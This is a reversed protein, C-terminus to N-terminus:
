HHVVARAHWIIMKAPKVHHTVPSAHQLQLLIKLNTYQFALLASLFV